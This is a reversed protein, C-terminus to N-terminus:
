SITYSSGNRNAMIARLMSSLCLRASEPVNAATKVAEVCTLCASEMSEVDIQRTNEPNDCKCSVLITPLSSNVLGNLTHPLDQISERNMVDYLLLAGDMRPVIHGNIQKPWQIRRDPVIDFCELDLEILSVTYLINDVSMRLSSAISTPASRLGFARQILTSKGVGVSGIVAINIDSM